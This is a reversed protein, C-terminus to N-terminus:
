RAKMHSSEIANAMRRLAGATEHHLRDTWRPALHKGGLLGTHGKDAADFIAFVEKPDEDEEYFREAEDAKM